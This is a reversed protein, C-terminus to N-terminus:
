PTRLEKKDKKKIKKGPDLDTFLVRLGCHFPERSM